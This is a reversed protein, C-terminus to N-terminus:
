EANRMGIELETVARGNLVDMLRKGKPDRLDGLGLGSIEIFQAGSEAYEPHRNKQAGFALRGVFETQRAPYRYARSIGLEALRVGIMAQRYKKEPLKFSIGQEVLERANTAGAIEAVDGQELIYNVAEEATMAELPVDNSLGAVGLPAGDKLLVTADLGVYALARHGLQRRGKMQAELEVLSYTAGESAHIVAAQEETVFSLHTQLAGGEVEDGKYLEAFISGGQGPRGHWVAAADPVDVSAFPMMLREGDLGYKEMKAVARPPNANAGYALIPIREGILPQDARALAQDAADKFDDFDDPLETVIDQSLLFSGQPRAGPYALLDDVKSPYDGFSSVSHEM